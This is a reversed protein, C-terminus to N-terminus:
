HLAPLVAKGLFAPRGSMLNGGAARCRRHCALGARQHHHMGLVVIRDAKEGIPELAGRLGLGVIVRDRARDDNLALRRM